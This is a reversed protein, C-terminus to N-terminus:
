GIGGSVSGNESNINRGMQGIGGSVSGNEQYYEENL